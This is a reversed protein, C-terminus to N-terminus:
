VNEGINNYGKPPPWHYGRQNNLGYDPSLKPNQSDQSVLAPLANALRGNKLWPIDEDYLNRMLEEILRERIGRYEKEKSCDHLEGRGKGIDFLQAVNGWPYHILRYRSDRIVKFAKRGEGVEGYLCERKGSSVTPIGEVSEPIELGCLELLTPMVGRPHCLRSDMEGMHEMVPRGSLAMPINAVNEYSSWKAAVRHDFLMDGHSSWLIIPTSDIVSCGWLMRILLRIQHDVHTCQIYYVRRTLEM